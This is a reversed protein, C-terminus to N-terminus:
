NDTFFVTCFGKYFMCIHVLNMWKIISFLWDFFDPELLLNYLMVIFPKGNEECMKIQVQGTQKATVFNGDSVKIYKVTEAM